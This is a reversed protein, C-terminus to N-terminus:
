TDCAVCPNSDLVLTLLSTCRALEAWPLGAATLQNGSLRLVRLSDLQAVEKAPLTTLHNGSLELARMAHSVQWAAEPVTDLNENLLGVVGTKAWGEARAQPLSAPTQARTSSDDYRLHGLIYAFWKLANQSRLVKVMDRAAASPAAARRSLEARKTAAQSKARSVEAAAAQGQPILDTCDPALVRMRMVSHLVCDSLCTLM